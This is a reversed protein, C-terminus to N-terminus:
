IFSFLLHLRGSKPFKELSEITITKIFLFRAFINTLPYKFFFPNGNEKRKFIKKM